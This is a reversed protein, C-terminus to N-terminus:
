NVYELVDDEHCLLVTRQIVVQACQTSIPRCIADVVLGEGAQRLEIRSRPNQGKVSRRRCIWTAIRGAGDRTVKRYVAVARVNGRVFQDCLADLIGARGPVL